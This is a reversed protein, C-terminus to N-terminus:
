NKFFDDIDIIADKITQESPPQSGLSDSNGNNLFGMAQLEDPYRIMKNILPM